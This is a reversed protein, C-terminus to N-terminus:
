SAKGLHTCTLRRQGAMEKVTQETTLVAGAICRFNTPAAAYGDGMEPHQTASTADAVVAVEFGQQVFERLHTGVCLNASM